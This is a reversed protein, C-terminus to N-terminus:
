GTQEEDMRGIRCRRAVLEALGAAHGKTLSSAFEAELRTVNLDCSRRRPPPRSRFGMTFLLLESAHLDVEKSRGRERFPSLKHQHYAYRHCAGLEQDLLSGFDLRLFTQVFTRDVVPLRSLNRRMRDQAALRPDVVDVNHLEQRFAVLLHRAQFIWERKAVDSLDSWLTSRNWFSGLEGLGTRSLSARSIFLMLSQRECFASRMLAQVLFSTHPDRLVQLMGPRTSAWLLCATFNCLAAMNSDWPFNDGDVASLHNQLHALLSSRRVTLEGSVSSDGSAATDDMSLASATSLPSKPM